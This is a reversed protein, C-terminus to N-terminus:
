DVYLMYQMPVNYICLSEEVDVLTYFSIGGESTVTEVTQRYM